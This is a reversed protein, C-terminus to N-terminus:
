DHSDSREKPEDALLEEITCHLAASLKSLTRVTPSLRNNEIRNVAQRSVGAKEALQDQTMSQKERISRLM